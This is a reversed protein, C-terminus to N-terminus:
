HHEKEPKMVQFFFGVSTIVLVLAKRPSPLSSLSLPYKENGTEGATCLSGTAALFQRQKIYIHLFIM